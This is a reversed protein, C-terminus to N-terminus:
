TMSARRSSFTSSFTWLRGCIVETSPKLDSIWTPWTTGTMLLTVNSLLRVIGVTLSSGTPVRMERSAIAVAFLQMSICISAVCRSSTSSDITRGAEPADFVGGAKFQVRTVVV